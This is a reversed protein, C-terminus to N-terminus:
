NEEDWHRTVCEQEASDPVEAWESVETYNHYYYWHGSEEDQHM